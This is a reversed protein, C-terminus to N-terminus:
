NGGGAGTLRSKLTGDVPMFRELGDALALRMLTLGRERLGPDPADLLQVGSFWSVVPHNPDIANATALMANMDQPRHQLLLWNFYTALVDLRQPARMLIRRLVLPWDQSLSEGPPLLSDGGPTFAMAADANALAMSLLLSRGEIDRREAEFLVRQVLARQEPPIAASAQLMAPMASEILTALDLDAGRPDVPIEVTACDAPFAGPSLCDALLSIARESKYLAMTGAAVLGALSLLGAAWLMRGRRWYIRCASEGLSGAALALAAMTAPMMFWFSDIVTWSLAFALALARWRRQSGLAVAVPIAAALALGPLGTAFLAELFANHSHFLDRALVDWDSDFLRIGTSSLNMVLYDAYHGWGHGFITAAFGAFLSPEIVKFLISRSWLSPALDRLDAFRLFLYSGLGALLITIVAFGEPVRRRADAWAMADRGWALSDALIAALGTSVVAVFATRNRSVLLVALGSAALIWGSFRRGRRIYMLAVPLLGLAYYALYENFQLLTTGPFWGLWTKVADSWDLRQLDFGAAAVAALATVGLVGGFALRNNRLIMASAIFAALALYWIAGLNNEPPGYISLFPFEAFPSALVSWVGLSASVLFAPHGFFRLPARSTLCLLGLGALCLAAGAFFVLGMPEADPWMGIAFVPHATFVSLSDLCLGLWM